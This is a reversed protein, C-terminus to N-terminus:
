APPTPEKGNIVSIPTAKVTKVDGQVFDNDYPAVPNTWFYVFKAVAIPVNVCGHSRPVGFDNHWYTGHIAIGDYTFFTNWPVGPDDFWAGTDRESEPGRMHRSPMKLIASYEGGPTSYDVVADNVNFAAGSAIRSTLVVREGEKCTLTQAALDVIIHKDIAHPRIANFDGEDIKRVLKAWIWHHTPKIADDKSTYEDYTDYWVNGNQDTFTDTVHYTTGYYFKYDLKSREDPEAYAYVYPAIVEVWIGWSGVDTYVAPTRYPEMKQLWGSYVFGDRTKYWTRNHQGPGEFEGSVSLIGDRPVSRILKRRKPDLSSYVAVSSALVRSPQFDEWSIKPEEEGPLVIPKALTSLPQGLAAGALTAGAVKLFTRRDIKTM